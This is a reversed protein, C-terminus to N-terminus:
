SLTFTKRPEVTYVMYNAPETQLSQNCENNDFIFIVRQKDIFITIYKCVSNLLSKQFGEVKLNEQQKVRIHAYKIFALFIIGKELILPLISLQVTIVVYDCSNVLIKCENM